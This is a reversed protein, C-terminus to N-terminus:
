QNHAAALTKVEDLEQQLTPVWVQGSKIQVDLAKLYWQESERFHQMNWYAVAISRLAHTVTEQRIIAYSSTQAFTLATQFEGVADTYKGQSVLLRGRDMFLNPTSLRGRNKLSARYQEWAFDWLADRYVISNTKPGATAQWEADLKSVRESDSLVAKAFTLENTRNLPAGSKIFNDIRGGADQYVEGLFQFVEPNRTKFHAGYWVSRPDRWEAVYNTTKVCWVTALAAGLGWALWSAQRWRGALAIMVDALLICVGVSPLFLYRDTVPVIFSLLMPPVMQILIWCCLVARIPQRTYHLLIPVAWMAVAAFVIAIRALLSWTDASSMSRYLAYTGCGTLLWLNTLETRAMTLISLTQNTPPQAHWTMWGFFLTVMGFPIKDAFMQWGRRKEVLVDWALMVAPLLLVSQKGASGAAFLFLSAAYWVYRHPGRRNLLYCAMALAAFGTAVLDKRSSIWAVVEVHAPHMVFLLAAVAATLIRRSITFALVYVAFTVWGHWIVNSWHFAAANKGGIAIDLAYSLLNAPAYNAAYPTTFIYKLNAARFSEIYPNNMVYDPDDVMLFGLRATGAYLAFNVAALGLLVLAHQWWSAASKAPPPPAATPRVVLIPKKSKKPRRAKM